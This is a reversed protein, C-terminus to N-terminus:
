EGNQRQGEYTEIKRLQNRTDEKHGESRIVEYTEPHRPREVPEEDAKSRLRYAIDVKRFFCASGKVSRNGPGFRRGSEVFFKSLSQLSPM